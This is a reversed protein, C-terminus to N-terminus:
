AAPLRVEFMAGREGNGARITGGYGAVIARAIALGLGTHRADSGVAGPRYTFFRDFIRAVNQEPIGPGEDAVRVQVDREDGLIEVRVVGGPPSFSVANDLVNEFVQILRDESADVVSPGATRLEFRVRSGERLRFGEAIGGLLAAVDVRAHEEVGLRADILSIERVGTLMKEMRAVEQDIMRAFRQRNQAESVEALMENATRISALPNKFEHSIDSAFTEMSKLHGDLRRMIRELARSLEGIEDLRKSGKFHTRIRGRRDLITRADVRLQRLPRSITTSFFIGILAALVLSVLFIRLVRLRVVYLDQLITYTSASAVVAGSVGDVGRIPVARYLTVSRQAASIKKDFGEGGQLAERIEKGTLRSANDYDDVDLPVEPPQVFRLLPRVVFAGIRYLTNRRPSGRRPAPVIAHSDAILNGARDVIRFRVGGTGVRHLLDDIAIADLFGERGIAAAVIRGEETLSRVEASELRAEYTGLYLIGAVPIFVLLLNFVLLRVSIRSLFRLLGKMLAVVLAQGFITLCSAHPM